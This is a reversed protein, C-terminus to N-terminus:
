IDLFENGSKDEPPNEEFDTAANKEPPVSVEDSVQKSKSEDKIKKNEISTRAWAWVSPQFISDEEKTNMEIERQVMSLIKNKISAKLSNYNGKKKPSILGKRKLIDEISMLPKRYRVPNSFIHNVIEIFHNVNDVNVIWNKFLIGSEAKMPTASPPTVREPGDDTDSPESSTLGGKLLQMIQKKFNVAWNDIVRFMELNKLNESSYNENIALNVKKDLEEFSEKLVSYNKLSIRSETKSTGLKFEEESPIETTGDEEKEKNQPKSFEAAAPVTNIKGLSGFKNTLYYPNEPNDPKKTLNRWWNKVRDWMGRSNYPVNLLDKKLQNILEDIKNSLDKENM